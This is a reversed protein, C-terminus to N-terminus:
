LWSQAEPHWNKSVLAARVLFPKFFVQLGALIEPLLPAELLNKSLLRDWDESKGEQKAFEVSFGVPLDKPLPTDRRKFTNQIAEAVISGSIEYNGAIFFLDYYDKLRSNEYGLEVIIQFKEAIVTEMPYAKLKPVGLEEFIVPYDITQESPTIVDGYGIDIQLNMKTKGLSAALQVRLGKYKEHSRMERVNVSDKNFVVGDSVSIECLSRFQNLVANQELGTFGLLDIDRTPRGAERSWVYFLNAGKLCYVSNYQSISLRYLFREIFFQDWTSQHSAQKKRSYQELRHRISQTTRSTM